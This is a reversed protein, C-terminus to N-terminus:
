IACPALSLAKHHGPHFPRSVPICRASECQQVASVLM